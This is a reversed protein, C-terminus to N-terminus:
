RASNLGKHFEHQKFEKKYVGKSVTRPHLHVVTRARVHVCARVCM